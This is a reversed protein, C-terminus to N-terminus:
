SIAGTLRPENTKWNLNKKTNTASFKKPNKSTQHELKPGIPGSWSHSDAYYHETQTYITNKPIFELRVSHDLADAIEVLKSLTYGTYGATEWRVITPHSTNLKKALERTSIGQQQRMHVLSQSIDIFLGYLTRRRASSIDKKDIDNFADRLKKSLM